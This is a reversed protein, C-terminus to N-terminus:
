RPTTMRRATPSETRTNLPRSPSHAQRIAESDSPLAVSRTSVSSRGCCGVRVKPQNEGHQFAVRGIQHDLLRGFQPDRGQERHEGFPGIGCPDVLIPQTGDGDLRGFLALPQGDRSDQRGAAQILDQRM